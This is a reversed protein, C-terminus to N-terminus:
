YLEQRACPLPNGAEERQQIWESLLKYGKETNCARCAPVLNGKSSQGGRVIPTKHDMSLWKPRINRECYYCRGAGKQNQWWSGERLDRAKARETKQFAEDTPTFPPM